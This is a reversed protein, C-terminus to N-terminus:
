VAIPIQLGQPLATARHECFAELEAAGLPRSFYFGQVLGCGEARLQRVQDITEV